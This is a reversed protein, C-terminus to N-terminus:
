LLELDNLIAEANILRKANAPNCEYYVDRIASFYFTTKSIVLDLGKNNKIYNDSCGQTFGADLLTQKFDFPPIFFKGQRNNVKYNQNIYELSFSQLDRYTSADTTFVDRGDNDYGFYLITSEPKNNNIPKIKDGVKLVIEEDPNYDRIDTIDWAPTYYIFGKELKYWNGKIYSDHGLLCKIWRQKAPEPLPELKRGYHAEIIPILNVHDLDIVATNDFDDNNLQICNRYLKFKLNNHKLVETINNKDIM